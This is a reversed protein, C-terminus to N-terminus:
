KQFIEEFVESYIKLIQTQTMKNNMYKRIYEDSVGDADFLFTAEIRRLVKEEFTLSFGNIGM